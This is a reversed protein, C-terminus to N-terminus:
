TLGASEDCLSDFTLLILRELLTLAFKGAAEPDHTGKTHHRDHQLVFTLSKMLVFDAPRLM